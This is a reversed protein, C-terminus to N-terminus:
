DSQAEGELLRQAKNDPDVGSERNMQAAEQLLREAEGYNGKKRYFVAANYRAWYSFFADPQLNLVALNQALAGDIDGIHQYAIGKNYTAYINHPDIRLTQDYQDIAKDAMGLALYTNGLNNHALAHDPKVRIAAEYEAIAGEYDEMLALARGLDNHSDACANNIRISERLCEEAQKAVALGQDRKGTRMLMEAEDQLLSGLSQLEFWNNETVDVARRAVTVGDKWYGVQVRTAAGMAAVVALAAAASLRVGWKGFRATIEPLLFAPILFLGTLPVYTYRDARAQAGVQLLGIVPILTIVYWLWGALVYPRKRAAAVSVATAAALVLVAGAVEGPPWGGLPQPYYNGLKTPWVTKVAYVVYSVAANAARQALSLDQNVAGVKQQAMITLVSSAASMALLPAKEWILLRSRGEAFRRLPWFDLVLLILPLTVLMPKAMLGLAFFVATLAYRAAGPKETYWSYAWVTLMMFLTSLVDKREAVWAVSEVHQPHLAFLAAVFASRWVYGTMRILVYFLLLTNAIHLALNTVHRGRASPGEPLGPPYLHADLMHSLWTLPHWNGAHGIEFAYRLGERTLGAKVVPNNTVYDRDDTNILPFQTVQWYVALTAAALLLCLVIFDRGLRPRAQEAAQRGAQKRAEIRRKKRSSGM